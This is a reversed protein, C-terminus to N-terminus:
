RSPETGEVPEPSVLEDRGNGYRITGTAVDWWGEPRMVVDHDAPGIHSWVHGGIVPGYIIIGCCAMCNTPPEYGNPPCYYRKPVASTPGLNM